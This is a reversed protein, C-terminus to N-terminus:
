NGEVNPKPVQPMGLTRMQRFVNRVLAVHENHGRQADERSSYRLCGEIDGESNFVMTEWLIPPGVGTFNHDLVLFVTSVRWGDIDTIAITRTIHQGLLDNAESVDIPNGDLGYWLPRGGINNLDIERMFKARGRRSAITFVQKGALAGLLWSVPLQALPYWVPTDTVWPLALWVTLAVVTPVWEWRGFRARLFDALPDVVIGVAATFADLYRWLRPHRGGDNVM